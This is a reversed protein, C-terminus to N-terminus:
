DRRGRGAIRGVALSVVSVLYLQGLMSEGIAVARPMGVAPVLDGYGTTSLTVFSFYVYSAQDAEGSAFFPRYVGVLTFVYGFLVGILLYLTLLGLISQLNVDEYEFLRRIIAGMTALVILGWLLPIIPRSVPTQAFTLAVALLTAVAAGITSYTVLGPRVGSVRLTAVLTVGQLIGVFMLGLTSDALAVSVIVSILVLTLAVGYAGRTRREERAADIAGEPLLRRTREAAVSAGRTARIWPLALTLLAGYRGPVCCTADTLRVLLAM